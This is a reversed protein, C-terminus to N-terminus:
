QFLRRFHKDLLADLRGETEVRGTRLAFMGPITKGPILVGWYYHQSIGEEQYVFYMEGPGIELWGVTLTVMGAQTTIRKQVSDIMNGTDVRPAPYIASPTTRIVERVAELAFEGAEEVADLIAAM